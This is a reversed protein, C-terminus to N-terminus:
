DRLATIPVVFVGDERRYAANSLGCLVCLVTPPIGGPERAIAQQIQLLNAAAEDIRNAGLKIEIACWSGDQTEIVADIERNKYDRYHYLQADTAEAYCRLDRECLAEFLFGLTELDNLLQEPTAQLLAVALSPDSFHRKEALKIRTSSRIKSTFPRQNELLFLREFLGLYEAITDPDIDDEDASQMDKRLTRASATTSENRALSRLLRRMKIADRRVSDVRFADDDIIVDLYEKPILTAERIPLGVSAPWGGRIIFEILDRIDTEGTMTPDLHGECLSKLSVAGSSDGSEFLSMPRMRVKAIRGAGSHLVGKHNPTASGTLIFQGKHGSQDVQHRVADWLEPVEQWEDILRPPEGELVLM